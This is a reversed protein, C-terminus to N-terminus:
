SLIIKSHGEPVMIAPTTAEIEKKCAVFKDVFNAENMYLVAFNNTNNTIISMAKTVERDHGYRQMLVEVAHQTIGVAMTFEFVQQGYALAIPRLTSGYKDAWSDDATPLPQDDM